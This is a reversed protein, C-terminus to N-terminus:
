NWPVLLALLILAVDNRRADTEPHGGRIANEARENTSLPGVLAVLTNCELTTSPRQVKSLPNPHHKDFLFVGRQRTSYKVRSIVKMHDYFFYSELEKGRYYYDDFVSTPMMTSKGFPIFSEAAEEDEADQFIIKPFYSRLARM